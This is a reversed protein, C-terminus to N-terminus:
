DAEGGDQPWWSPEFGHLYVRRGDQAEVFLHGGNPKRASAVQELRLLALGVNHIGSLFKGASRTRQPSTGQDGDKSPVAFRVDAGHEPVPMDASRDLQLEEPIPEPQPTLRVPIIRKRVVGTYHTRATLEQGIYCGKHFDVGHMYDICSELPMSSEKPIDTAGEPVGVVIRHALYADDGVRDASAELPLEAGAPVLLRWGLGPARIDRRILAANEAGSHMEPLADSPADWVHYVDWSSSADRLKVKSRLKFRQVTSLVDNLVVRDLEVLVTPQETHPPAHLLADAITRGQPTLFAAPFVDAGGDQASELHRIDNTISGQLLKFTDRGTLELVGRQPLRAVQLRTVISSSFARVPWAAARRSAAAAVMCPRWAM